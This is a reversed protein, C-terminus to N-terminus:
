NVNLLHVTAINVLCIIGIFLYTTNYGFFGFFFEFLAVFTTTLTSCYGIVWFVKIGLKSGYIKSVASYYCIQQSGYLGYDIIYALYFFGLVDYFKWLLILSLVQLLFHIYIYKIFGMRDLINGFIYRALIM